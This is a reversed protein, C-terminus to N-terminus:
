TLLTKLSTKQVIVQGKYKCAVTVQWKETSAASATTVTFEKETGITLSQDDWSETYGTGVGSSDYATVSVDATSGTPANSLTFRVRVDNANNWFPRGISLSNAYIKAPVKAV